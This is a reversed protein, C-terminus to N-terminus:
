VKRWVLVRNNAPMEHDATLHLDVESAWAVLDQKSRIGSLPDRQQLMQDFALNSPATAREADLFPGYLAFVGEVPLRTGVERVMTRAEAASMIHATNASFVADFDAPWPGVAVDLDLPPEVNGLRAEALWALIGAHNEVRDSTQWQRPALARGLFVAHQGTGSGIELICRRDAFEGALVDLIAQQNNESAQSFPKM